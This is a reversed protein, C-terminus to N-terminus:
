AGQLAPRVEGLVRDVAEALPEPLTAGAAARHGGGGFVAALAACDFGGRSRFSVKIGGRPLEVLLVGIEVGSLSVTFDILDETDPPIAGANRIEERTITGYAIRGGVDTRLNALMRGILRLRGLTNREFLSRYIASLDAGADVLEAVHRLTEPRTNPHRFWGTDMAIATALATAMERTFVGGLARVAAFILAGTAEAETDKFVVAGLDDQSVHHDIVLRPGGFGRVITEMEGLQSWSSLDLIVLVESRALDAPNVQTGLHEILRKEPDLFDYRPPTLSANVIRVEKGRGRLFAAMAVESGLADGDPRVHSTILFRDYREIVDALPTWDITM